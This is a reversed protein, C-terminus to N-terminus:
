GADDSAIEAWRKVGAAESRAQEGKWEEIVRGGKSRGVEAALAISAGRGRPEANTTERSQRIPGGERRTCAWGLEEEEAWSAERGEGEEEVERESGKAELEASGGEGGGGRSEM